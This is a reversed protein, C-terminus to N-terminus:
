DMVSVNRQLDNRLGELSGSPILRGVSCAPPSKSRQSGGYLLERVRHKYSTDPIFVTDPDSEELEQEHLGVSATEDKKDGHLYHLIDKENLLHALLM